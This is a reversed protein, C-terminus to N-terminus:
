YCLVALPTVVAQNERRTIGEKGIVASCDKQHSRLVCAPSSQFLGPFFYDCYLKNLDDGAVDSTPKLSYVASNPPIELIKEVTGRMNRCRKM